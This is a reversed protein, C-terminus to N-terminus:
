YVAINSILPCARADTINIRIKSSEIANLPLIRKYGITTGTAAKVWANDKWVEVDFNRVRQGLKIYEQISVYNLAQSKGLDIEISGATVNDDTAWYTEKDGDTVNKAAYRKSSGRYQDSSAKACAALNTAFAADLLKKWETLAKVDNEHILGRRDPPLNLLLNSGRGVSQLYLKLLNEPTRVRADETAHYFWGPRISVDVEAPLWVNGNESGANLVAEVNPKGAYITDPMTAWNTEGAFGSENGCWRVDPGGDSFMVAHPALKRVIAHTNAWDYYTKNDIHRNERAGGYYGNGGNAGDFWVESVEGYNSLLETLQNRYYILYEPTAYQAYNRDWPSLYIGFFIGHKRCADSVEKVIDAKGDKFPSNKISHETYASPWLCFGDHHKCTLILGKLGANKVTTVWQEADFETPNFIAPNEDGYGWEQDTFTNVTFHIFAYQEREHWALQNEDPIPLLAAPPLM